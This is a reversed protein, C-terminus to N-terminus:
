LSDPHGQHLMALLAQERGYPLHGGAFKAVWIAAATLTAAKLAIALLTAAGGIVLATFAVDSALDSLEGYTIDDPISNTTLWLVLIESMRHHFETEIAALRGEFRFWFDGPTPDCSSYLNEPNSDYIAFQSEAEFLVGGIAHRAEMPIFMRKRKGDDDEFELQLPGLHSYVKWEQIIRNWSARIAHRAQNLLWPESYDCIMQTTSSLLLMQDSSGQLSLNIQELHKQVEPTCDSNKQTIADLKINQILQLENRLSNEFDTDVTGFNKNNQISLQNQIDSIRANAETEIESILTLCDFFGQFQQSSSQPKFFNSQKNISMNESKGTDSQINSDMTDPDKFFFNKTM